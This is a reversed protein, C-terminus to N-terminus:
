KDRMWDVDFLALLEGFDEAQSSTAALIFLNREADVRLIGGPPALPQLTELLATALAFRLPFVYLGFGREMPIPPAGQRLIPPSTVADALPVIKYIEGDRVLAAGNMALVDELVGIADSRKLPRATRLTITGQVRPDIVYTLGLTNGLIENAVERVDANAFNLTIDENGVDTVGEGASTTLPPAGGLYIEPGTLGSGGGADSTIQQPAVAQADRGDSVDTPAPPTPVSYSTRRTRECGGLLSACLLVAILLVLTLRVQSTQLVEM